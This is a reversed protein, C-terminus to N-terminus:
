ANMGNSSPMYRMLCLPAFGAIWSVALMAAVATTDPSTVIPSSVTTRAPATMVDSPAGTEIPARQTTMSFETM